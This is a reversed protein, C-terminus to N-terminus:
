EVGGCKREVAAGDEQGGSNPVTSEHNVLDVVSSCHCGDPCCVLRNTM